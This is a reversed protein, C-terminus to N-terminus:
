VPRVSPPMALYSSDMIHTNVVLISDFKDKSQTEPLGTILDLTITHFPGQPIPLPMLMGPLKRHDHKIKQCVDCTQMYNKVDMQMTKWYCLKRLTGLTWLQGAHATGAPSNHVEQLIDPRLSKPMCLHCRLEPDDWWLLGRFCICHSGSNAQELCKAQYLDGFEEDLSYAKHINQYTEPSLEIGLNYLTHSGTRDSMMPHQYANDEGNKDTYSVHETSLDLLPPQKKEQARTVLFAGKSLGSNVHEQWLASPPILSSTTAVSDLSDVLLLVAKPM